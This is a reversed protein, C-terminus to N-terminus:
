DYDSEIMIMPTSIKRSNIYVRKNDVYGVRDQIVIETQTKATNFIVYVYKNRMHKMWDDSVTAPLITAFKRDHSSIVAYVMQKDVALLKVAYRGVLPTPIQTKLYKDVAPKM